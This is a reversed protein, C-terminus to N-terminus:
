AAAPVNLTLSGSAQAGFTASNAGLASVVSQAWPRLAEDAILQWPDSYKLVAIAAGAAHDVAPSAIPASNRSVTVKEADVATVTMAESDIVITQGPALAVFGGGQFPFPSAGPAFTLETADAAMAGALTGPTGVRQALWHIQIDAAVSASLRLNIQATVTPLSALSAM